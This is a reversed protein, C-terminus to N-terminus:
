KRPLPKLERQTRAWLRNHKDRVHFYKGQTGRLIEAIVGKFPKREGVQRSKVPSGARLAM